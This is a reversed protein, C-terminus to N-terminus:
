WEPSNDFIKHSYYFRVQCMSITIRELLNNLTISGVVQLLLKLTDSHHSGM